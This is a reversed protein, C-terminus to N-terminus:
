EAVEANIGLEKNIWIDVDQMLLDVAEETSLGRHPSDDIEQRGVETSYYNLLDTRIKSRIDIFVGYKDRLESSNIKVIIRKRIEGVTM